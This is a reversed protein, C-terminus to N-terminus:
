DYVNEAGIEAKRITGYEMVERICNRTYGWALMKEPLMDKDEQLASARQLADMCASPSRTRYKRRHGDTYWTEPCDDLMIETKQMKRRLLM